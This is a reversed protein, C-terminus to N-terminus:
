LTPFNMFDTFCFPRPFSRPKKNLALDFNYVGMRQQADPTPPPRVAASARSVRPRPNHTVDIVRYRPDEEGSERMKLEFEDDRSAIADFVRKMTGTIDAADGGSSNLILLTVGGTARALNMARVLTELSEFDVRCAPYAVYEVYVVTPADSEALKLVMADIAKM